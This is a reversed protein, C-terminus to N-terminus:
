ALRTIRVALQDGTVEFEAWGILQGNVRLPVDQGKQWRTNIVSRPELQLLHRVTFRPIALDVAMEVPLQLCEGWADADSAEAPYAPLAPNTAM